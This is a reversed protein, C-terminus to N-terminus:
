SSVDSSSVKRRKATNGDTTIASTQGVTSSIANTALLSNVNQALSQITPVAGAGAVGLNQQQITNLGNVANNSLMSALLANATGPAPVQNLGAGFALNANSASLLSALIANTNQQQLAQPNQPQQLSQIASALQQQQLTQQQQQLTQLASNLQKQEQQQHAQLISQLVSNHQLNSQQQMISQVLANLQAQQKPLAQFPQQANSPLPVVGNGQNRLLMAQIANLDNGKFQGALTAQANQISALLQNVDPQQLQPTFAAGGLNNSQPAQPQMLSSLSGPALPIGGPNAKGNIKHVGGLFNTNEARKKQREAELPVKKYHVYRIAQKAKEAAEEDTMEVYHDQDEPNDTKENDLGMEKAEKDDLRQLFRGKRSQILKVMDDIMKAKEKRSSTAVYSPRLKEVLNRFKINGANQMSGSGRGQLVDNDNLERILVRSSSKAAADKEHKNKAMTILYQTQDIPGRERATTHDAPLMHDTTAM